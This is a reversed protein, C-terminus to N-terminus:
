GKIFACLAQATTDDPRDIQHIITGHDREPVVQLRVNEAGIKQLWAVLLANEEVRAAMDNEACINLMPPIQARLHHLVSAEDVVIQEAAINRENKVTAHTLTQGSIPVLGALQAPDMGEARLYQKDFTLMLALYGGASHGGIYLRNPDGNYEGVHRQTWAVSAAADRIYDPFKVRPSLRYNHVATVIGEATLRRGVNVAEDADKSVGTLGGGHFWVLVPFPGACDPVYLDLTCREREYESLKSGERYALNKACDTM